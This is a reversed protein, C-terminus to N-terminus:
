KGADIKPATKRVMDMYTQFSFKQHWVYIHSFAVYVIFEYNTILNCGYIVDFSLWYATIM